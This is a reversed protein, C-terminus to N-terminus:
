TAQALKEQRYFLVLDTSVPEHGLQRLMTTVQGRHYTSHNVLHRLLQWLPNAHSEGKFNRYAVVRDLDVVTLKDIFSKQATELAGWEVDIQGRTYSQWEVPVGIPSTGIWRALWIWEAGMIHLLTDRLSPYSNKLDRSFQEDSLKAVASRMRANAWRNFEYLEQIEAARQM